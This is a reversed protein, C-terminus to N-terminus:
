LSLVISVMEDESFDFVNMLFIEIYAIVDCTECVDVMIEIGIRKGSEQEFLVDVLEDNEKVTTKAIPSMGKKVLAANVIRSAALIREAHQQM